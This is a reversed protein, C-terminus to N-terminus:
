RRVEKRGKKAERRRRIEADCLARSEATLTVTRGDSSSFTLRTIGEGDPCMDRGAKLMGDSWQSLDPKSM